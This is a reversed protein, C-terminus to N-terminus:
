EKFSTTPGPGLAAAGHALSQNVIRRHGISFRAITSRVDFTRSDTGCQL